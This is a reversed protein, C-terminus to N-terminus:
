TMAGIAVVTLIVPYMLAGRISSVIRMNNRIMAQLAALM